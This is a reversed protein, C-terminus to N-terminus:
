EESGVVDISTMAAGLGDGASTGVEAGFDDAVNTGFGSSLVDGACYCAGASALMRRKLINRRAMDHWEQSIDDMDNRNLTM